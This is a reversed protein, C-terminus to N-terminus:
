AINYQKYLAERNTSKLAQIISESSCSSQEMAAILQSIRTNEREAGEARGEALGEARGKARGEARGEALGEALGEARGEAAAHAKADRIDWDLWNMNRVWEEDEFANRMATELKHTLPDLEVAVNTKIFQLLNMVEPYVLSRLAAPM